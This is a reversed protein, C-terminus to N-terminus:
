AKGWKASHTCSTQPLELFEKVKNFLDHFFSPSEVDQISDERPGDQGYVEDDMEELYLPYSMGAALSENNLNLGM